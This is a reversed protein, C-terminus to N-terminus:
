APQIYYRKMFFCRLAPGNELDSGEVVYPEAAHGRARCVGAKLGGLLCGARNLRVPTM